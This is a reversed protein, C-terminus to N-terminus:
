DWLFGLDFDFFKQRSNLIMNGSFKSGRDQISLTSFLSCKASNWPEFVAKERQSSDKENGTKAARMNKSIVGSQGETM